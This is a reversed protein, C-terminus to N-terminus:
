ILSGAVGALVRDVYLGLRVEITEPNWRWALRTLERWLWFDDRGANPFWRLAALVFCGVSGGYFMVLLIWGSLEEALLPVFSWTQVSIWALLIGMALAMLSTAGPARRAYWQTRERWLEFAGADASELRRAAEESTVLFMYWGHGLSLAVSALVPLAYMVLPHPWIVVALAGLVFFAGLSTAALQRQATRSAQTAFPQFRRARWTLAGIIGPLMVASTMMLVAVADAFSDLVGV